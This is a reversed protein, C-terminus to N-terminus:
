FTSKINLMQTTPEKYNAILLNIEIVTFHFEEKTVNLKALLNDLYDSCINIKGLEIDSIYQRDTHLLDALQQETLNERKRYYRIKMGNICRSTAM